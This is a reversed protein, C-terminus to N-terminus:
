TPYTPVDKALYVEGLSRNECPKKPMQCSTPTRATALEDYNLSKRENTLLISTPPLQIAEEVSM